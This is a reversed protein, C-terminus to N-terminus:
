GESRERWGVQVCPRGLPHDAICDSCPEEHQLRLLNGWPLIGFHGWKCVMLPEAGLGWPPVACSCPENTSSCSTDGPKHWSLCKKRNLCPFSPRKPALAAAMEGEDQSPEPVTGVGPFDILKNM